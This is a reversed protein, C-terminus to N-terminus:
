PHENGPPAPAADSSPESPPEAGELHFVERLPAVQDPRGDLDDFFPAMAAEWRAAVASRSLYDRAAQDDLTEYYGVLLGDDSLFLTYNSRGAVALETLMDAPVPSHRRVYEEQMGARVRLTFCVRLPAIPSRM